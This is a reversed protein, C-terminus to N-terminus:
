PSGASATLITNRISADDRTLVARHLHETTPSPTIGLEQRLTIRHAQYAELAGPIDGAFYKGAIMNQWSRDRLPRTSVQALIEPVVTIDGLAICGAHYNDLAASHLDDLAEFRDALNRTIRVDQGAPGRWLAIADALQVIGEDLHGRVLRERGLRAMTSFVDADLEGPMVTIQYAADHGGRQTIVRNHLGVHELSRRLKSVYGRLNDTSTSPPRDWLLLTIQEVSVSRGATLLLTAALARTLRTSPALAGESSFLVVPGLLGIRVM